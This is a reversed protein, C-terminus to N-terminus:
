NVKLEMLRKYTHKKGLYGRLYKQILQSANNFRAKRIRPGIQM